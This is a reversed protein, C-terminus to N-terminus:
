HDDDTIYVSFLAEDIAGDKLLEYILLHQDPKDTRVPSLGLIGDSKIYEM